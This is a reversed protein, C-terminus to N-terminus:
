IVRNQLWQKNETIAGQFININQTVQSMKKQLMSLENNMAVVKGTLDVNREKMASSLHNDTELGYIKNAKLMPSIDPLFLKIGAGEAYGCYYECCPRQWAYEDGAAMDVGYVSIEEFGEYIALAIMEAISNTLYRRPFKEVIKDFPYLVLLNVNEVHERMYVPVSCNKLFEVHEPKSKTPSSPDHIEFWRDFRVKNKDGPYQPILKYAENLTWIEFEEDDFPTDIWSPAFGMIAVKRKYAQTVPEGNALVITRQPVEECVRENPSDMIDALKGKPVVDVIPTDSMIKKVEGDPNIITAHHLM